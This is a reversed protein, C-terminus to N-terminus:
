PNNAFALISFSNQKTKEKTKFWFTMREGDGHAHLTLHRAWILLGNTSSWDKTPVSLQNTKNTEMAPRIKKEEEKVETYIRLMPM